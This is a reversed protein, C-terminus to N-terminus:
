SLGRDLEAMLRRARELVEGSDPAPGGAPAFRQRDCEDLLEFVQRLVDESLGRREQIDKLQDRVLGAEALNSKDAIFGTLAKSVEGYFARADKEAVARAGALRKKAARGARRNRAYAVDGDLRELHGRVGLALLAAFMPLLLVVWFGPEGFISRGVRLFSPTGIHIFRIEERIADVSSPIRGGLSPGGESGSVVLHIPPASSSRYGRRGPEFSAVEVGPLEFDGAVRPIVVYDFFRSGRTSAEGDGVDVRSEPPFVELEPPFEISPAPIARLNGAGAYTVTFTVAENPGVTTRDVSTSVTLPGVHGDFEPPRGAAPPETVEITVPRTAVTVPILSGFLGGRDLRAFPDLPDGFLDRTRRIRVRAELTLPDLVKEGAGTPFLAVRRVVASAYQQGDRVVQEVEPTDSQELEETWFGTASPLGTITYSEVNVRTFIRYEALIPENEVVRRKDLSVEVFVDGPEVFSDPNSGSSPTTHPPADLITLDVPDTRFERGGVTVRVPGITHGGLATALYRYQVTLSVTTRGGAMQMSTSTGSGVYQAFASLDPVVPEQELQRVGSVEVNLVFPRGLGVESASLYARVEQGALPADAAVSGSVSLGLGLLAWRSIRRRPASRCPASARRRSSWASM